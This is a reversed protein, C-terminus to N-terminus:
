GEVEDLLRASTRPAFHRVVSIIAAREEEGIASIWFGIAYLLGCCVVLVTATLLGVGSLKVAFIAATFGASVLLGQLFSGSLCDRLSFAKLRAAFWFLFLADLFGSTLKAVAAGNIGMHKMLMWSYLVFLPLSVIDLIAKLDPRGLAQVSTFPIYSFANLLFCIAVLQLVVTSQKAFDAGMWLKLIDHAFVVFVAVVPTMLFLLYKLTRATVDSVVSGPRDGHYSFYPFLAPAISAPFIVIKSMLDFPVAYYTLVGVSLVSAIVFREMYGFIPGATNSVMVWGGFSVLAPVEKRVFCASGRLQPFVRFCLALYAVLSFVRSLVSWLVIASVRMHLPIAIAAILYFSISTPVKVYNVLDFRQAAELVGRLGNSCLLLPVAMALIYLSTRAEGVSAPPMRFLRVLLPVFAATVLGGLLGLGTQLTMSTYVLGPLRSAQDRHLSQAVFKTTARSLGLDFIGFCSLLTWAISLTGFSEAGLGRVVYPITVVGIVLPVIQGAFNLASNKALLGRGEVRAVDDDIRGSIVANLTM